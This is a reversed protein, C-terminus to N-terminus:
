SNKKLDVKPFLTMLLMIFSLAVQIYIGALKEPCEGAMCTSLLIFNRITWSFVLTVIFINTRKAWIRNLLFLIIAVCSLYTLFLGPKGFSTGETDFGTLTLSKSEISVWPIFCVAILAAAAIIGIIQSYKM